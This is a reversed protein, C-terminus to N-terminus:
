DVVRVLVNRRGFNTADKTTPMHLDIRQGNIAGGTDGAIAYGYGEVWVKSGLPIVNPDVAIVKAGPNGNLNIGTATYGTCGNCNATYATATMTIEKGSGSSPTANSPSNTQVSTNKPTNTNSNNAVQQEVKTGVAIVKDTPAKAVQEGIFVRDKEIGNETRIKYTKVTLGQNGDSIVKEKGQDLTADQKKVTEFAISEEVSETTEAVKIVKIETGKVVVTDLAPEIMDVPGIEIKEQALLQAVTAGPTWINKVENGNHVVVEYAKLILVHMDAKIHATDLHSVVDHESVEINAEVLFSRIDKATTYHVAEKGDINIHVKKAKTYKIEMGDKISVTPKHSLNDVEKANIDAEILIDAVKEGRTKMTKIAGNDNLVIQKKANEDYIFISIIVTVLIGITIM